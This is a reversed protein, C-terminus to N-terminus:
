RRRSVDASAVVLLLFSTELVDIGAIVLALILPLADALVWGIGAAAAAVALFVLRVGRILGAVDSSGGALRGLARSLLVVALGASGGVLAARVLPPPHVIADLFAGNMGAVTAAVVTRPSVVLAGTSLAPGARRSAVREHRYLPPCPDTPYARAKMIRRSWAILRSAATATTMKTPQEGASGDGDPGGAVSGTACDLTGADAPALATGDVDALGTMTLGARQLSQPPPM